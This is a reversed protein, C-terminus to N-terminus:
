KGLKQKVPSKWPLPQKPPESFGPLRKDVPVRCIDVSQKYQTDPTGQEPHLQEYYDFGKWFKHRCQPCRAWSRITKKNANALDKDNKKRKLSAKAQIREQGLFAPIIV